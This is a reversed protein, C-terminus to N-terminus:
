PHGAHYRSDTASSFLTKDLGVDGHSDCFCSEKLTPGEFSVLIDQM